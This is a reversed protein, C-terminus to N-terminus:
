ALCHLIQRANGRWLALSLRQWYQGLVTGLETGGRAAARSALDKVFDEGEPLWGGFSCVAIAQFHVGRADCQSKYKRDKADVKDLAARVSASQRHSADDSAIARSQSPHSVTVDIAVAAGRLFNPLFVDAPRQGSTDILVERKAPVGASSCLGLLCEQVAHHRGYM